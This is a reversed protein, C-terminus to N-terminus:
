AVKNNPEKEKLRELLEIFWPENRINDLDKDENLHKYPNLPLTNHQETHLLHIKANEQQNKLSYYCALNYTENSKIAL